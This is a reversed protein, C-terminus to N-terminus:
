GYMAGDHSPQRLRGGWSRPPPRFGGGYQHWTSDRHYKWIFPILGDDIPGMMLGIIIEWCHTWYHVM